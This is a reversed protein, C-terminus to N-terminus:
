LQCQLLYPNSLAQADPNEGKNDEVCAISVQATLQRNIMYLKVSIIYSLSATVNLLCFDGTMAPEVRLGVELQYVLLFHSGTDLVPHRYLNQQIRLTVAENKTRKPLLPSM